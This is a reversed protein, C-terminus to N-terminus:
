DQMAFPMEMRFWTGRVARGTYNFKAKSCRTSSQDLARKYVAIHIGPRCIGRRNGYIDGYMGGLDPTHPMISDNTLEDKLTCVQVECGRAINLGLLCRDNLASM